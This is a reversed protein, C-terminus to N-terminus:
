KWFTKFLKFATAAGVALPLLIKVVKKATEIWSDVKKEEPGGDPLFIDIVEEIDELHEDIEEETPVEIFSYSYNVTFFPVLFALHVSLSFLFSLFLSRM